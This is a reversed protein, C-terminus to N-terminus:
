AGIPTVHDLLTIHCWRGSTAMGQRLCLSETSLEPVKGCIQSQIYFTHDPIINGSHLFCEDGGFFFFTTYSTHQLYGVGDRFM